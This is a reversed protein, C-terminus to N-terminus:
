ISTAVKRTRAPRRPAATLKFVVRKGCAAAYRELTELTINRGGREVESIYTQRTRLKEALRKQTLGASRRARYLEEAIALSLRASEIAEANDPNDFYAQREKAQKAYAADFNERLGKIEGALNADAQKKM